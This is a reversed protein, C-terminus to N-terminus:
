RVPVGTQATWHALAARCARTDEDEPGFRRELEPLLRTLEAIGRAPEGAAAIWHAARSRCGWVMWDNIGYREERQTALATLAQAAAAPDGAMGTWTALRRQAVADTPDPESSLAQRTRISKRLLALAGETDGLHGICSALELGVHITTLYDPGERATMDAYHARYMQAAEDVHGSERLARAYERLAGDRIDVKATGTDAMLQRLASLQEDRRGLEGLCVSQRFRSYFVEDAEPGRLAAWDWALQAFEREAEAWGGLMSRISAITSRCMMVLAAADQGAARLVPMLATFRQLSENVGTELGGLETLLLRAYLTDPHEPGLRSTRDQVARQLLEHAGQYGRWAHVMGTLRGLAEYRREAAPYDLARQLAAIAQPFHCWEWAIDALDMAEDPTTFVILADLSAAPPPTKPLADILYDFALHGNGEPELLSSSGHVPETAWAIAAALPEPRLRQGGHADLFPQASHTLVARTLPRHIACRRALVAATVLAAARPHEGVAWADRYRELLQPGAALYEALGFRDLQGLADRIRPDDSYAASRAEEKERESWTRELRIVTALRLVEDGQRQLDTGLREASGLSGSRTFRRHEESRMTALIINERRGDLMSHVAARTLGGSGLFTEVDDLWVVVSRRSNQVAHVATEVGARESPAILLWQSTKAQMAEFAARTKGATSEGVLLVFRGPVLAEELADSVDRRVFPPPGEPLGPGRAARHVGLKVPDARAVIPLRGRDLYLLMPNRLATTVSADHYKLGRDSCVGGIAAGAGAVLGAWSAPLWVASCGATGGIVAM